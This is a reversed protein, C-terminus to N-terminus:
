TDQILFTSSFNHAERITPKTPVGQVHVCWRVIKKNGIYNKRFHLEANQTGELESKKSVMQASRGVRKSYFVPERELCNQM